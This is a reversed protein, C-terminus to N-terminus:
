YSVTDCFATTWITQICGKRKRAVDYTLENPKRRVFVLKIGVMGKRVQRCEYIYIYVGRGASRKTLQGEYEFAEVAWARSGGNM